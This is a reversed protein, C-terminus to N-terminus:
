RMPWVSGTRATQMAQRVGPQPCVARAAPHPLAGADVSDSKSHRELLLVGPSSATDRLLIVTAAPVPTAPAESM